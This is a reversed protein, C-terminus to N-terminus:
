SSNRWSIPPSVPRGAPPPTNPASMFTESTLSPGTVRTISLRALSYRSPIEDCLSENVELVPLGSQPFDGSIGSERLYPTIRFRWESEPSVPQLDAMFDGAMASGSTALVLGCMASKLFSLFTKM